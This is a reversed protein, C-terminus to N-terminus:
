AKACRFKLGLLSRAYVERWLLALESILNRMFSLSSLRYGSGFHYWHNLYHSLQYLKLCKEFGPAKPIENHYASYFSSRIGGFMSAVTLEYDSHSNFSALDFIIPGSSGEAVNGGWPDGHLLVPVINLDLFLDLIKLQLASWLQLAQRDGSGKEVLDMQPQICQQAYFAVRDKPWDNM